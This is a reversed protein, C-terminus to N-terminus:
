AYYDRYPGRRVNIFNKKEELVLYSGDKEDFGQFIGGLEDTIQIEKGYQDKTRGSSKQKVVDDKILMEIICSVIVISGLIITCQAIKRLIGKRSIKLNKAIIFM